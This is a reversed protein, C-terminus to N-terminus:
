RARAVGFVRPQVFKDILPTALNMILISYSVGEPYSGYIRILVTIIGCGIGMILRGKRTVPSTVYDTAMFFAGLMLGGALIHALPDGTFVGQPGTIWTLVAVTGIFGVPIRWDIVGRFLLYVGGILIALASTEGLCGPINGIFMNWYSPLAATAEGAKPVLTALPTATSVADFPRVWSTMHAPWAAMLMARAALAPNVFNQGLGGFLQKVIIIAFASGVVALWWPATVPINFALLLGTVAASWDGITIPRGSVREYVAESLVAAGTSIAMLVLAKPGFFLTGAFAAPILAVIVDRMLIPVTAKHKLHPSSSLWVRELEVM